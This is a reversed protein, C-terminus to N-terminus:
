GLHVAEIYKHKAGFPQQLQGLITLRLFHHKIMKKYSAMWIIRSVRLSPLPNAVTDGFSVPPSPPNLLFTM